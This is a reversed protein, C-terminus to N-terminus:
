ARLSIPGRGRSVCSTMVEKREDESLCLDRHDIEGDVVELVCSGCAGGECSYDVPVNERLVAQLLSEDEPVRIVRKSLVLWADFVDGLKEGPETTVGTFSECRVRAPDFDSTADAIAAMLSPPGCYYLTAERPLDKVFTLVDLRGGASSEHLVLKAGSHGLVDQYAADVRNRVCYHVESAAGRPLGGLLGLVATVGIGGAVFVHHAAASDIRMGEKPYSVFVLDGLALEDQFLVSGGRGDSERRVAIRYTSLDNTSGILSYDRTTGNQHQLQVHDGPIFPPFETRHVPEFTLERVDSAPWSEAKLRAAMLLRVSM